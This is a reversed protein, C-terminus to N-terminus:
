RTAIRGCCRACSPHWRAAARAAGRAAAVRTAAAASPMSIAERHPRAAQLRKGAQKAKAAQNATSTCICSASQSSPPSGMLQGLLPGGAGQAAAAAQAWAHAVSTRGEQAVM